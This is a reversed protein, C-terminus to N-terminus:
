SRSASIKGMTSTALNNPKNSEERPIREQFTICLTFSHFESCVEFFERLQKPYVRCGWLSCGVCLSNLCSHFFCKLTVAVASIKWGVRFSTIQKRNHQRITKLLSVENDVAQERKHQLTFRFSWMSTQRRCKGNPSQWNHQETVM